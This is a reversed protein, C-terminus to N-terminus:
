CDFAHLRRGYMGKKTLPPDFDRGPPCSYVYGPVEDAREGHRVIFIRKDIRIGRDSASAASTVSVSSDDAHDDIRLNPFRPITALLAAHTSADHQHTQHAAMITLESASIVRASTSFRADSQQHAHQRVTQSQMIIGGILHAREVVPCM